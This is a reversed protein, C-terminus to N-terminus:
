FQGALRRILALATSGATEVPGSNDLKLCNPGLDRDLGARDLRRDIAAASERGRAELRKRLVDREVALSVVHVQGFCRRLESLAGRSGNAIAVGGGRVHDLAEAPLGYSLGHARWTVAFRGAAQAAHFDAEPMADHDELDPDASRTVTRRVFMVREYGAGIQRRLWDMLTDKGSGSPGVIVVLAGRADGDRGAPDAVSMM